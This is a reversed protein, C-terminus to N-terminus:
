IGASGRGGNELPLMIKWRYRCASQHIDPAILNVSKNGLDLADLPQDGLEVSGANPQM